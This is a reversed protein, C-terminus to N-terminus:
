YTSPLGYNTAAPGDRAVDLATLYSAGRISEQCCTNAQLGLCLDLLALSHSQCLGASTRWRESEVRTTTMM